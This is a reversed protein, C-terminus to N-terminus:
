TVNHRRAALRRQQLPELPPYPGLVPLGHLSGPGAAAAAEPSTPRLLHSGPAAQHSLAASYVLQPQATASAAPPHAHPAPSAGATASQSANDGAAGAAAPKGLSERYVEVHEEGHEHGTPLRVVVRWAAERQPGRLRLEICAVAAQRLASIHKAVLGAASARLAGAVKADYEAARAAAAAANSTNSGAGGHAGAGLPIHLGSLLTGMPTGGGPALPLAPLVSFFLHTWDATSSTGGAEGNSGAAQQQQRALEEICSVLQPELESMAAGAVAAANGSYTAALLAPSGLQRLLGRVFLRRMPYSRAANSMCLQNSLLFKVYSCHFLRSKSM